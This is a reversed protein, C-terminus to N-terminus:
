GRNKQKINVQNWMYSTLKKTRIDSHEWLRAPILISHSTLERNMSINWHPNDSYSDLFVINNQPLGIPFIGAVPMFLNYLMWANQVLLSSVSCVFCIYFDLSLWFQELDCTWFKVLSILQLLNSCKIFRSFTPRFVIHILTDISYVCTISTSHLYPFLLQQISPHRVRKM